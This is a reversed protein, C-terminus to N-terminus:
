KKNAEIVTTGQGDIGQQYARTISAPVVLMLTRGRPDRLLLSFVCVSMSVMGWGIALGLPKGAILLFGCPGFFGIFGSFFCSLLLRVWNQIEGHEIKSLIISGIGGIAGGILGGM